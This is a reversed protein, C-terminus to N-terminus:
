ALALQIIAAAWVLVSGIMITSWVATLRFFNAIGDAHQVGSRRIADLRTPRFGLFIAYIWARIFWFVGTRCPSAFPGGAVQSPTKDEQPMGASPPPGVGNIAATLMDWSQLATGAALFTLGGVALWDGAIGWSM